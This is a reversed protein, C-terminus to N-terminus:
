RDHGTGNKRFLGPYKPALLYLASRGLGCYSMADRIRGFRPRGVQAAIWSYSKASHM